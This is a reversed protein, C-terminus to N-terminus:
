MTRFSFRACLAAAWRNMNETVVPGFRDKIRGHYVESGTTIMGVLHPLFPKVAILPPNQRCVSEAAVVKSEDVVLPIVRTGAVPQGASVRHNGHLSAFAVDPIANLRKLAAVDM